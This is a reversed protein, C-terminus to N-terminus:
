QQPLINKQTSILLLEFHLTINGKMIIFEYKKFLELFRSPLKMKILDFENEKTPTTEICEKLYTAASKRDDGFSKEKAIEKDGRHLSIAYAKGYSMCLIPQVKMDSFELLTPPREVVPDLFTLLFEGIEWLKM